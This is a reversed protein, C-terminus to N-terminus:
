QLQNLIQDPPPSPIADAVGGVGGSMRNEADPPQVRRSVGDLPRIPRIVWLTMADMLNEKEMKKGRKGGVKARMGCNKGVPSGGRKGKGTLPTTQRVRCRGSTESYQVSGTLGTQNSTKPEEARREVGMVPAEGSSRGRSVVGGSEHRLEGWTLRQFKGGTGGPEVQHTKRHRNSKANGLVSM